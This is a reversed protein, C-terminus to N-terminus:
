SDDRNRIEKVLDVFPTEFNWTIPELKGMLRQYNALIQSRYKTVERIHAETDHPKITEEVAVTPPKCYVFICKDVMADLFEELYFKEGESLTQEYCIRSIPTIRDFISPRYTMWSMQYRSCVYAHDANIPPPGALILPMELM